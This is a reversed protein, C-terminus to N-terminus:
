KPVLCPLEVETTEYPIGHVDVANMFDVLVLPRRKRPAVVHLIVADWGKGDNEPCADQPWVWRPIMVGRGPANAVTLPSTDSPPMQKAPPAYVVGEERDEPM